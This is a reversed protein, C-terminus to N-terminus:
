DNHIRADSFMRIHWLGNVIMLQNGPTNAVVNSGDTQNIVSTVGVYLTNETLM